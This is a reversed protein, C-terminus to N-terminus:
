RIIFFSKNFSPHDRASWLKSLVPRDFAAYIFFCINFFINNKLFSHHIYHAIHKVNKSKSLQLLTNYLIYPKRRRYIPSIMIPILIIDFRFFCSFFPQVTRFVIQVTVHFRDLDTFLYLLGGIESFPEIINLVVIKSHNYFYRIYRFFNM